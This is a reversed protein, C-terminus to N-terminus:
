YELEKTISIPDGSTPDSNEVRLVCNIGEGRMGDHPFAAKPLSHLLARRLQQQQPPHPPCSPIACKQDLGAKSVDKM